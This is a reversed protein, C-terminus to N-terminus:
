KRGEEHKANDNYQDGNTVSNINANEGETEMTTTTTTTTTEATEYQSEYYIFGGVLAIIILTFSIIVATLLYKFGNIAKEQSKTVDYLVSMLSNDLDQQGM